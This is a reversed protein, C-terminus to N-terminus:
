GTVVDAVRARARPLSCGSLFRKTKEVRRPQELGILAAVLSRTLSAAAIHRALDRAQRIVEPDPESRSRLTFTIGLFSLLLIKM